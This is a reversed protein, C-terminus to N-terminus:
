KKRRISFKSTVSNDNNDRDNDGSIRKPPTGNSDNTLNVQESSSNQTSTPVFDLKIHLQSNTGKSLPVWMDKIYEDFKIHDWLHLIYDGLEIDKSLINHDRVCFLFSVPADTITLKVRKNRYPLGFFFLILKYNKFFLLNLIRVM